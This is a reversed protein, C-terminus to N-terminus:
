CTLEEQLVYGTVYAEEAAEEGYQFEPLDTPNWPATTAGHVEATPKRAGGRVAAAGRNTGRPSRPQIAHAPAHCEQAIHGPGGCRFCTIDPACPTGSQRQQNGGQAVGRGRAKPGRYGGRVNLNDVPAKPVGATPAMAAVFWSMVPNLAQRVKYEESIREAEQITRPIEKSLLDRVEPKAHGVRLMVILCEQWVEDLDTLRGVLSWLRTVYDKTTEESTMTCQMLMVMVHIPDYETLFRRRIAARYREYTVKDAAKVSKLARKAEEGLTGSLITVRKTHQAPDSLNALGAAEFYEDLHAFFADLEQIMDPACVKLPRLKSKLVDTVIRQQPDERDV